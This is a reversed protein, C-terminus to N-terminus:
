PKVTARAHAERGAATIGPTVYSVWGERQCSYITRQRGRWAPGSLGVLPDRGEVYATLVAM